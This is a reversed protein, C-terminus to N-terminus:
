RICRKDESQTDTSHTLSSKKKERQTAPSKCEALDPGVGIFVKSRICKDVNYLVTLLCAV